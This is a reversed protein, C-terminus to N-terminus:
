EPRDGQAKRSDIETMGLGQLGTLFGPREAQTDVAVPSSIGAARQLLADTTREERSRWYAVQQRLEACTACAAAPVAPTPALLARWARLLRSWM